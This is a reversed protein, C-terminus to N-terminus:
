EPNPKEATSTAPAVKTISGTAATGSLPSASDGGGTAPAGGSSGGGGCATLGLILASIATTIAPIKINLM